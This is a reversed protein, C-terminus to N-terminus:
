DPLNSRSFPILIDIIPSHFYRWPFLNQSRFFVPLSRVFNHIDTSPVILPKVIFHPPKVHRKISRVLRKSDNIEKEALIVNNLNTKEKLINGNNGYEDGDGDGEGGEGERDDGQLLLMQKDGQKIVKRIVEKRVGRIYKVVEFLIQTVDQQTSIYRCCRLVSVLWKVLWMKGSVRRTTKTINSSLPSHETITIQSATLLSSSAELNDINTITKKKEREPISATMSKRLAHGNESPHNGSSVSFNPTSPFSPFVMVNDGGGGGAGGGGGSGRKWDRHVSPSIPLPSTPTMVSTFGDGMVAPLILHLSRSAMKDKLLVQRM